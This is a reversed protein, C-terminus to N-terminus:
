GSQHSYDLQALKEPYVYQFIWKQGINTDDCTLMSLGNQDATLCLNTNRKILQNSTINLKWEQNGKLKHCRYLQLSNPQGITYELCHEGKAIEFTETYEFFQNGGLYHCPYTQIVGKTDHESVKADLCTKDPLGENKVFGEAFNDPVVLDPYVNEVYWKFSKCGLDKRLKVRESIDGFDGKNTGSRLYYIKAYDDMWVEALRITNRRLVDVGPRWKYPSIKRFIHGVHSCPIIELTGGCMWTKFSIELNEAGWIDFDPDYMGLKVFFARDISFLGGAMTPSRTPEAPHKKRLREVMPVLHWDFTLSWDFGGVQLGASSQYSFEFTHDDIVDIVPCVVTTRNRAIRDLLPELWGHACEVHSDLFTLTPAKAVVAGRIRAKILGERKDARLIRVKPLYSMYEELPKKLHALFSIRSDNPM